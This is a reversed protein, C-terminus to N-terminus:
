VNKTEFILANISVTTSYDQPFIQQKLMLYILKPELSKVFVRKLMKNKNICKIRYILM